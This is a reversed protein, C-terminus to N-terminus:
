STPTPSPAAPAPLPATTPAPAAAANGALQQRLAEIQQALEAQATRINDFGFETYFSATAQNGTEDYVQISQAGEGTVPMFIQTTFEGEANTRQNAVIVGGVLIQVNSEPQYRFGQITVDRGAPGSSPNLFIESPRIARQRAFAIQQNPGGFEGLRSDAWVMYVDEENAAIAFYDGIFAGNPFARQSNSAFDTVRTDPFSIGQQPDEFGFTAGKDQSRTYYINYRFELPDERTDGWM